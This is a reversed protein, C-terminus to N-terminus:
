QHQEAGTAVEAATVQAAGEAPTCIYIQTAIGTKARYERSVNEQFADVANAEVVNITAGGFGGGTM